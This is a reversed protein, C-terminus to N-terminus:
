NTLTGVLQVSATNAQKKSDLGVGFAVSGHMADSWPQFTSGNTSIYVGGQGTYLWLPQLVQLEAFIPDNHQVVNSRMSVSLEILDGPEYAIVLGRTQAHAIETPDVTSRQTGDPAFADM